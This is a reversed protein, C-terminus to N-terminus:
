PITSDEMRLCITNLGLSARALQMLEWRDIPPPRIHGSELAAALLM